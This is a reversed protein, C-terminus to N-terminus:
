PLQNERSFDNCAARWEDGLYARRWRRDSPRPWFVATVAASSGPGRFASSDGLYSVALCDPRDILIGIRDVVVAQMTPQAAFYDVEGMLQVGRNFREQVAVVDSLANQDKRYIADFWGFDVRRVIETVEALRQDSSTTTATEPTSTTTSVIAGSTTMAFSSTTAAPESTCSVTMLVGAVV